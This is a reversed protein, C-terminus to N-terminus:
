NCEDPEGAKRMVVKIREIIDPASANVGSTEKLEVLRTAATELSELAVLDDGELKYEEEEAYELICGFDQLVASYATKTYELDGTRESIEANAIMAPGVMHHYHSCVSLVASTWLNTAKAQEKLFSKDSLFDALTEGYNALAAGDFWVDGAITSNPYENAQSGIRKVEKEMIELCENLEERSKTLEAESMEFIKELRSLVDTVKSKETKSTSKIKNIVM